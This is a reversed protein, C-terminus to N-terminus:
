LSSDTSSLSERYSAIIMESNGTKEVRGKEIWVARECIKEMANLSHSVFLITTGRKQFKEMRKHCKRQFAEDGVALIEDIILIQPEVDTAIAFGLRMSMGSSYTRLPADIFDSLEAFEVIREYKEDMQSKSFGLTAGNLYINERGTLEPHFGAGIAILPAVNGQVRVRGETPKLIRAIVRLLTTKGAGNRGIIGLAEGHNVEFSVERLAWFDRHKIRRGQIFRIIQEKISSIDETPVRYKVSVNELNVAFSHIEDRKTM